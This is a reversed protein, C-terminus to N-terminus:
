LHALFVEFVYSLVWDINSMFFVMNCYGNKFLYALFNGKRCFSISILQPNLYFQM